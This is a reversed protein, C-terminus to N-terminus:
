DGSFLNPRAMCPSLKSDARASIPRSWTTREGFCCVMGLRIRNTARCNVHQRFM